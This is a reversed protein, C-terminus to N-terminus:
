TGEPTTRVRAARRLLGAWEGPTVDALELLVADLESRPRSSIMRGHHVLAAAVALMYGMLASARSERGGPGQLMQKSQGKIAMLQEFTARGECLLEKPLGHTAVPGTHLIRSLWQDGDPELLRDVLDNVPRRPADLGVQLLRSVGVESLAPDRQPKTM